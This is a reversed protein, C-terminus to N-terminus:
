GRASGAGATSGTAATSPRAAGSPSSGPVGEHYVTSAERWTSFSTWGPRPRVVVDGRAPLLGGLAPHLLRRRVVVARDPLAADAGARPHRLARSGLEVMAQDSLQQMWDRFEQPSDITRAPDADLAAIGAAIADHVADADEGGPADPTVRRAVDAMRREIRDLEALGWGYTEDLDVVTGLFERAHLAYLDRGAADRDTAGTLM